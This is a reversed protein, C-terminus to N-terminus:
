KRKYIEKRHGIAVIAIIQGSLVAIVRYYDGIRFRVDGISSDVLFKAHSLPNALNSLWKIKKVIRRAENVELGDMDVLSKKSFIFNYAM